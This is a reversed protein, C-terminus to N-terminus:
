EYRLGEVPDIRAALTAPYLTATFCIAIASIAVIVITEPVIVV